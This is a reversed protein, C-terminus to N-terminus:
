GVTEASWCRNGGPPSPIDFPLDLEIAVHNPFISVVDLDIHAHAAAVDFSTRLGSTM